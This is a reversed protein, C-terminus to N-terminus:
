SSASNSDSNTGSQSWEDIRSNFLAPSTESLSIGFVVFERLAFYWRRDSMQMQHCGQVWLKIYRAAIRLDSFHEKKTFSQLNDTVEGILDKSRFHFNDKEFGLELWCKHFSYIPDGTHFTAKYAAVAASSVVGVRGLDFLLWDVKQNTECGNSSWFTNRNGDLTNQIDQGERDRTSCALGSSESTLSHSINEFREELKVLMIFIDQRIGIGLENLIKKRFVRTVDKSFRFSFQKLDPSHLLKYHLQGFDLDTFLCNVNVLEQLPLHLLMISQIENPFKLFSLKKSQTEGV